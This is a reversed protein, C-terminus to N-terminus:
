EIINKNSKEYIYLRAIYIYKYVRAKNVYRTTERFTKWRGTKVRNTGANYAALTKILDGNYKKDLYKFYTTGIKINDKYNYLDFKNDKFIKEKKVIWAATEPMVQMLGVAGKRSVVKERFGSEVKILSLILEPEIGGFKTEEIVADMYKVPFYWLFALFFISIFIILSIIKKM